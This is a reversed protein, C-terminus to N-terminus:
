ALSSGCREIYLLDLPSHKLATDTIADGASICAIVYYVSLTHKWSCCIVVHVSTWIRALSFLTQPTQGVVIIACLTDCSLLKQLFYTIMISRSGFQSLAKLTSKIRMHSRGHTKICEQRATEYM